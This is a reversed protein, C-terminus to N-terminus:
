ANIDLFSFLFLPLVRYLNITCFLILCPACFPPLTHVSKARGHRQRHASLSQHAPQESCLLGNFTINRGPV